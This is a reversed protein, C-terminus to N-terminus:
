SQRAQNMERRLQEKLEDTLGNAFANARSLPSDGQQPSVSALPRPKAANKQAIAKEAVFAEEQHIGLRKIMTYASVATAYMDQSSNLTSAIEPYQLKLMEVNDKSVIKDFDPYQSKLRAETTTMNSQQKYQNLESELKKIKRAVKSLHKGEALDDPALAIDDDEEVPQTQQKSEYEQLRRMAEDREREIREAKERLARMNAQADTINNKHSTQVQPAEEAEQAQEEEISEPAEQVIEQEVPEQPLEQVQSKIPNGDRDYKIEFSM